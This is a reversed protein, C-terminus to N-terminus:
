SGGCGEADADDDEAAAKAEEDRESTDPTALAAGKEAKADGTEGSDCRVATEGATDDVESRRAWLDDGARDHAERRPEAWSEQNDLLPLPLVSRMM